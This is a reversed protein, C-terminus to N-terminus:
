GDYQSVMSAYIFQDPLLTTKATEDIQKFIVQSDVQNMICTM